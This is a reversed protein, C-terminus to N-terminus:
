LSYPRPRRAWPLIKIDTLWNKEKKRVGKEKGRKGKKKGRKGKEWTKGSRGAGSWGV